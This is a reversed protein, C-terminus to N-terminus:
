LSGGCFDCVGAPGDCAEGRSRGICPSTARATQPKDSFNRMRLHEERNTRNEFSSTTRNEFSTPRRTRNESATRLPGTLDDVRTDFDTPDDFLQPDPDVLSWETEFVGAQTRSNTRVLYGAAELERVAARVASLGERAPAPNPDRFPVGADEAARRAAARASVATRPEPPSALDALTVRYGEAHSILHALLGIARYSLRPDRLYRNRITAFERDARMMRRVIRGGVNRLQEDTM